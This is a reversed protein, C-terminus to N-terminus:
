QIPETGSNEINGTGDASQSPSSIENGIAPFIVAVQELAETLFEEGFFDSLSHLLSFMTLKFSDPGTLNPVRVIGDRDMVPVAQGSETIAFVHNLSDKQLEAIQAESMGAMFTSVFRMLDKVNFSGGSLITGTLRVAWKTAVKPNFKRLTFDRGSLKITKNDSDAM